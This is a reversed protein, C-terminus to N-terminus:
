NTLKEKLSYALRDNNAALLDVISTFQQYTSPNEKINIEYSHWTSWLLASLKDILNSRSIQTKEIKTVSDYLWRIGYDPMFKKGITDLLKILSELCELNTSFRQCWLDIKSIMDSLPAWDPKKWTVIGEPDAFILLGLINERYDGDEYTFKKTYQSNLIKDFYHKWIVLLTKELEPLTGRLLLQRLFDEMMAPSKEWNEDIIKMLDSRFEDVRLLIDSLIPFFGWNWQYAQTHWENYGDERQGEQYRQITLQLIKELIKKVQHKTQVNRLIPLEHLVHLICMFRFLDTYTENRFDRLDSWKKIVLDICKIVIKDNQNWLIRLSLFLFNRVEDNENIAYSLLQKEFKKEKPFRMLVYPLAKAIARNGRMAFISVRNEQPLEINILDTFTKVCWKDRNLSIITEWKHILLASIFCSVSDFVMQRHFGDLNQLFTSDIKEVYDIASEVTFGQSMTNENLLSYAWGWFSNLKAITEIRENELKEEETLQSDRDFEILIQDETVRRKKYNEVKGQAAWLECDRKRKKLLNSDDREEEYFIPINDPFRELKEQMKKRIDDTSSFLIQTPIDRLTTQRHQQKALKILEEYDRKENNSFSLHESFSRLSSEARLDETFRKFDMQWFAPVELIPLIAEHSIKTFQLAISTCVGVVAASSTGSLVEEILNKPNTGSKIQEYMWKELAMLATTVEAQGLSPYRFWRFVDEDGFVEITKNSLHIIQPVPKKNREVEERLKWIKTSHNVIRHILELGETVHIRLFPLFPGNDSTPPNFDPLSHIGLDFFDYHDLNKGDPTKRCFISELVELSTKPIFKCIMAWGYYRMLADTIGYNKDAQLVYKKLFTDVKETICDASWLIIKILTKRLKKQDDYSLSSKIKFENTFRKEFLDLSLNALKTKLSINTSNSQWSSVVNYFEFLCNDDIKDLNSATFEIIPEWKDRLPITFYLIKKQVEPSDPNKVIKLLNPDTEVAVSRLTKLIKSLLLGNNLLLFNQILPIIEPTSSTSIPNTLAEHYWIPSIDNNELTNLLAYWEAPSKDVELIKSVYLDFPRLIRRYKQNEKLFNVINGKEHILITTISYDEIIDHYFKLHNDDKTILEDSILGEISITNMDSTQSINKENSISKLGINKMIIERDDAHGKGPRIGNGLRVVQHWFSDYFWSETMVPPLSKVDFSVKRILMDIYGARRAVNHLNEKKFINSLQPNKSVIQEVEDDTLEAVDVFDVSSIKDQLLLLVDRLEQLRCTAVIKWCYEPPSNNKLLLENYSRVACFLEKIIRIKNQQYSLQELGDILLCRFPTSGIASLLEEFTHKVDLIRLFQALDTGDIRDVSFALVEGDSRLRNALLKLLVSKGVFPEGKLVIVDNKSIKEEIEDLQAIRPLQLNNGIKDPIYDLVKNSYKRLKQLDNNFDLPEKIRFSTLNQKLMSLDMSGANKALDAVLSTLKDFLLKAQDIDGNVLSLSDDLCKTRDSSGDNEIDFTMINLSKLFQWFEIDSIQTEEKSIIHKIIKLYDKKDQSHSDSSLNEFFSDANHTARAIELIPILHKKVKDSVGSVVIGLKDSNVIFKTGNKNKFTKWCDIILKNFDQDEKTFNIRRRVQISLTRDNEGNNAIIIIDDLLHGAFKQQFKVIKTIGDIGRTSTGKLLSLLYYAGVM